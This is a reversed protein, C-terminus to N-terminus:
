LSKKTPTKKKPTKKKPTAKKPTTKKSTAKKPTTKKPTTKKPTAKKPTKKSKKPTKKTPTKKPTAKKPTKKTPTKKPTAKKPTKKKGQGDAVQLKNLEELEEIDQGKLNGVHVCKRIAPDLINEPPCEKDCHGFESELLPYPCDTVFDGFSDRSGAWQSYRLFPAIVFVKKKGMLWGGLQVYTGSPVLIEYEQHFPHDKDIIAPLYFYPYGKPLYIMLLCKDPGDFHRRAAELSISASVNRNIEWRGYEDVSKDSGKRFRKLTTLDAALQSLIEPESLYRFAFIDDTLPHDRVKEHLIRQLQDFQPPKKGKRKWAYTSVQKYYSQNAPTGVYKVLLDIDSKTVHTKRVM